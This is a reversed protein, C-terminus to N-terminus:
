EADSTSPPVPEVARPLAAVLPLDLLALLVELELLLELALM